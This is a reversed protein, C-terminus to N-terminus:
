QVTTLLKQVRSGMHSQARALHTPDHLLPRVVESKLLNLVEPDSSTGMEEFFAFLKSLAQGNGPADLQALVFPFVVMAFVLYTGPPNAWDVWYNFEGRYAPILQPLVEFLRKELDPYKLSDTEMSM